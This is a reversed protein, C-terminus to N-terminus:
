DGGSEAYTVSQFRPFGPYHRQLETTSCKRPLSSTSLEIRNLPETTSRSESSTSLKDRYNDPSNLPETTSNNSPFVPPISLPVSKEVFRLLPSAAEVVQDSSHTAFVALIM